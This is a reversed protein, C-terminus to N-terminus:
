EALNQKKTTDLLTPNFHVALLASKEQDEM